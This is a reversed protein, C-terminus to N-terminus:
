RPSAAVTSIARAAPLREFLEEYRRVSEDWSAPDTYRTGRADALRYLADRLADVDGPPFFVCGQYGAASDVLAPIDTVAIPM